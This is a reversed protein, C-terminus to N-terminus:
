RKKRGGMRQILNRLLQVIDHRATEVQDSLGTGFDVTKPQVGLLVVRGKDDDSRLIVHLPINHTTFFPYTTENLSFLRITGAPLGMDVADVIIILRVQKDLIKALVNEPSNEADVVVFKGSVRVIQTQLDKAILSGVYDDSRLPHGIGVIFAEGDLEERDLLGIIEHSWDVGRRGLVRDGTGEKGLTSTRM